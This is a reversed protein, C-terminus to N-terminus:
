VRDLAADLDAIIDHVDELGVSLRIGGPDIGVADKKAAPLPAHTMSYPNEVLTKVQGLSVALTVTYAEKALWDILAEAPTNDGPSHRLVFYILTGPMFNGAHDRMQHVALERQAFCPLGPYHVDKVKPHSQLYEAVQAATKQEAEYRATLTPLGNVLIPWAARAGLAGGFDKRFLLLLGHLRQPGVVVGGMDTGFGGINKTLSAAVLDAGHELPRQGIPTCFTNDVITYIRNDPSRNKNADAVIQAVAAIDILELTPNVPTEFYLVRTEPRIAARVADLDKMDVPDHAINWRPLWNNVLSHTCGYLINHTVLHQGARVTTCIAASIAAMGTAYAVAFDGNEAIALNEELMGRTPEDLRDYVYIPVDHSKDEEDSAFRVFGQAGRHSSDLRYTASCSMPPVVHHNYDWHRSHFFGHILQTKMRRPKRDPQERM